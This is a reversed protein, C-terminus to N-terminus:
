LSHTNNELNPFKPVCKTHICMTKIEEYLMADTLLAQAM